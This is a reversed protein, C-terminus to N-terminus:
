ALEWTIEYGLAKNLDTVLDIIYLLLIEKSLLFDLM